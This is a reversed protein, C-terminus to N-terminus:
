RNIYGEIEPLIDNVICTDINYKNAIDNIRNFDRSLYLLLIGAIRNATYQDLVRKDNPSIHYKRCIDVIPGNSYLYNTFSKAFREAEPVKDKISVKTWVKM